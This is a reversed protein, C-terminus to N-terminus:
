VKMKKYKVPHTIWYRTLANLERVCKSHIRSVTRNELRNYKMLIKVEQGLMQERTLHKQAM